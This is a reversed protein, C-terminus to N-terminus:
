VAEIKAKIGDYFKNYLRPVSIFITPRLLALDDKLLLPDGRYFGVCGGGYTILSIALREMVHPLPLYSLHVDTPLMRVGSLDQTAITAIFNGHTLLAGKPNGTTGSTYSFTFITEPKVLAKQHLNNKGSQLVDEWRHLM